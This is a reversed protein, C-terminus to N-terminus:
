KIIRCSGLAHAHLYECFAKVDPNTFESSIFEGPILGEDWRSTVLTHPYAEDRPYIQVVAQSQHIYLDRLEKTCRLPSPDPYVNCQYGAETFFGSAASFLKSAQLSSSPAPHITRAVDSVVNTCGAVLSLSFFLLANFKYM